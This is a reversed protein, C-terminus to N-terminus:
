NLKKKNKNKIQLSLQHYQIKFRISTLLLWDDAVLKNQAKVNCMYLGIEILLM